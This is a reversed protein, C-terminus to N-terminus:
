QEEKDCQSGVVQKALSVSITINRHTINNYTGLALNVFKESNLFKTQKICVLLKFERKGERERHTTHARMCADARTKTTEVVWFVDQLPRM